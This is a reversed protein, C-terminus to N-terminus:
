VKLCSHGFGDLECGKYYGEEDTVEDEGQALRIVQV